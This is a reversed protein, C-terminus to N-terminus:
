SQSYFGNKIHNLIIALLGYIFIIIDQNNCFDFLNEQNYIKNYEWNLSIQNKIWLFNTDKKTYKDNTKLKFIM